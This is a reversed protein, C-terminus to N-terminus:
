GLDLPTGTIRALIQRFWPTYAEPRRDADRGVEDVPQWRWADVEEPNAAPAGEYRGILVEVLEDETLGSAADEARYRFRYGRHLPVRFGLEEGLRREGAAVVEEGPEPHGCCTNSWLGAFHYKHGARRQLLLEGARNFILISFALHLRGGGQHAALKEAAGIPTGTEDVLTVQPM